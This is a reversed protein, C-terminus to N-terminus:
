FQRYVTMIILVITLLLMGCSFSLFSSSQTSPLEERFVNYLVSGSLFAIMFSVLVVNIPNTLATVLWGLFLLALLFLRGAKSFYQKFNRNFSRDVLIFHLGIVLTFIVSYTIGSQVRLPMTYTILFNYIGYMMLHLYYVKKNTSDPAVRTRTALVELAFYVNFGFLAIIFIGLDLLPTLTESEALLKGITQNGEVLEPLMHLFVYAVAVGGAFSTLRKANLGPLRDFWPSLYHCFILFLTIWFAFEISGLNILEM